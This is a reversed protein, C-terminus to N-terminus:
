ICLSGRPLSFSAEQFQFKKEPYSM